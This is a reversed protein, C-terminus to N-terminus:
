AGTSSLPESPPRIERPWQEPAVAKKFLEAEWRARKLLKELAVHDDKAVWQDAEKKQQLVANSDKLERTEKTFAAVQRELELCKTSFRRVDTALGEKVANIEKLEHDQRIRTTSEAHLAERTQRLDAELTKERKKEKQARVEEKEGWAREQQLQKELDKIASRLEVAEKDKDRVTNQEAQVAAELGHVRRELREAVAQWDKPPAVPAVRKAKAKKEKVGDPMFYVVAALIGLIVLVIVIIWLFPM